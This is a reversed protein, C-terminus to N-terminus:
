LNGKYLYWEKMVNIVVKFDKVENSNCFSVDLELNAGFNSSINFITNAENSNCNVLDM